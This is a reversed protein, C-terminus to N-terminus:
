HPGPPHDLIRSSFVMLFPPQIFHMGPKASIDTRVFLAPVVFRFGSTSAVTGRVGRNQVALVPTKEIQVHM